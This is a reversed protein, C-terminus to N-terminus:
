VGRAEGVIVRIFDIFALWFLFPSALIRALIEISKLDGRM